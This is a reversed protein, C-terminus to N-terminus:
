VRRSVNRGTQRCVSRGNDVWEDESEETDSWSACSEEVKRLRKNDGLRLLENDRMRMELLVLDKTKMELLNELLDDLRIESM